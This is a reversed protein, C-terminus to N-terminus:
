GAGIRWPIVEDDPATQAFAFGTHLLATGGLLLATTASRCQRLFTPRGEASGSSQSAM